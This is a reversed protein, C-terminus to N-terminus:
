EIRADKVESVNSPNYYFDKVNKRSIAVYESVRTVIRVVDNRGLEQAQWYFQKRKEPDMERRAANLLSTAEPTAYFSYNENSDIGSQTMMPTLAYDSDGTQNSWGLIYLDHEGNKLATLYTGWELVKIEATIGADKLQSQVVEALKIRVKNDNTYLTIKFGDPYGAAALLEKAKAVNHVYPKLNPNYGFVGSSMPATERLGINSYVGSIIADLDVAAAIAERVRIDQFVPKKLNFGVYDIGYGPTRIVQTDPDKSLREVESPSITEAVQAEGTKVMGIRTAEEPVVKYVITTLAPKTGWYGDFRSLVLEQGKTWKEMKFPGTGVPNQILPKEKDAAIAKPSIISTGGHALHQLLAAFPYETILQVKDDGVVKVEKVMSVLNRRIKPEKPDLLRDFSAKVAQANFDTGDHFKVGKRLTFEWTVPDVQKWETALMPIIDGKKDKYVLTEYIKNVLVNTSPVDNIMQPDLKVADSLVAIILKDSKGSTKNGGCGSLALLAGLLTLCLLLRFSIQKKM